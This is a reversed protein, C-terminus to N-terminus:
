GAAGAMQSGAARSGPAHTWDTWGMNKGTSTAPSTAFSTGRISNMLWPQWTDDGEAPNANPGSLWRFARLLADDGATFPVEGARDLLVATVMAGQLAEWPYSGQPAPWTLEATRRQDEPIIGDASRGALVVDRRNIGAQDDADGHWTTSSYVLQNPVDEGLYARHANAVTTLQTRDDIYIDIAVLAARAMTGWNGPSRLATGVLSNGGSHGQLPKTRVESLFRRFRADDTSPLGVLDAAIVYSPINRSMELVRAFRTTTAVENLATRVRATLRADGTRVAVLAGALVSTDHRSNNDM